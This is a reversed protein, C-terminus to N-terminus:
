PNMGCLNIIYRITPLSRASTESRADRQMQHSQWIMVYYKQKMMTRSIKGGVHLTKNEVYYDVTPTEVQMQTAYINMKGDQM